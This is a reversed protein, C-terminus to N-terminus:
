PGRPLAELCRLKAKQDRITAAEDYTIRDILGVRALSRWLEAAPERQFARRVRVVAM